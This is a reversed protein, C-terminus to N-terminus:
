KERRTEAPPQLRQETSPAQRLAPASLCAGAAELVSRLPRAHHSLDRVDFVGDERVAAVSPGEVEPRWVRAALAGAHRDAPLTMEESLDLTAV